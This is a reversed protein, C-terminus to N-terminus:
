KRREYAVKAAVVIAIAGVASYLFYALAPAPQRYQPLSASSYQDYSARNGAIQTHLIRVGERQADSLDNRKDFQATLSDLSRRQMGTLLPSYAELFATLQEKNGDCSNVCELFSDRLKSDRLVPADQSLEIGHERLVSVFQDQAGASLVGGWVIILYAALYKYVQM